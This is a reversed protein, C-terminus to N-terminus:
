DTFYTSVDSHEQYLASIAAQLEFIRPRNGQSFREKLELWMVHSSDVYIVSQGIKSFLSNLLRSLVITNCKSLSSFLVAVKTNSLKESVLLVGPHDVNTLFYPSQPNSEVNVASNTSHVHDDDAM